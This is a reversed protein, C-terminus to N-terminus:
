KRRYPMKGGPRGYPPREPPNLPVHLEQAKARIAAESRGLENAIIGVPRTPAMRQLRTEDVPTWPQGGKPPKKAM